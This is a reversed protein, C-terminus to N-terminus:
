DQACQVSRQIAVEEGIHHAFARLPFEPIENTVRIIFKLSALGSFAAHSAITRLRVHTGGQFQIFAEFFESWDEESRRIRSGIRDWFSGVVERTIDPRLQLESELQTLRSALYQVTVAGRKSMGIIVLVVAESFRYTINLDKIEVQRNLGALIQEVTMGAVEQPAWVHVEDALVPLHTIGQDRLVAVVHTRLEEDSVQVEDGEPAAATRMYSPLLPSAM